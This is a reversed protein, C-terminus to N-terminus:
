QQISYNYEGKQVARTATLLIRQVPLHKWNTIIGQEDPRECAMKEVSAKWAAADYNVVVPKGHPHELIIKGPTAINVPCVTMFTQTINSSPADLSFADKVLVRHKNRELAITRRWSKLGATSPYAKEINMKLATTAGDATYNLATAEFERGASQQVGNITPLNHYPSTNYWLTYRDKSFTVAMYTGRGVDIIVPDGNAYVIFDGVDNHNHSEANHGGHTAVFLGNKDRAAMLQVSPLWVDALQAPHGDGAACAQITLLDWLQRPRFFGESGEHSDLHHYAWRGFSQMVTDQVAKGFRYLVLGDANITPNADAVNIFYNGDIHTRYIYSGLKRILPEQYITLQGNTASELVSLADFLAIGAAFFYSPGEDTAGDEGLGNIYLDLLSLAHHLENVRRNNDKELLLLSIMWNSIIWPNWNNVSIDRGGKGLYGYRSSQKELPELIKRNVEYYIRPRILPSIKQLKDGALYDTLALVAATEAGFLEVIPDQVDPLGNGAKQVSLHAPVGWYTEECIAWTDNLITETFRSKDELLEALVLTFLQNRRSFSVKEYNARNGNRVYELELTAPITPLPQNNYQEAQSIIKERVSDPVQQRWEAARQPFPKWQDKTLLSKRIDEISFRSLLDRHTVQATLMKAFFLCAILLLLCRCDTRM